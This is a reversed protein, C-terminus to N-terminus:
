DNNQNNRKKRKVKDYVKAMTLEQELVMLVLGIMAFFLAYDSAQRRKEFLLKRRGLRYCEKRTSREGQKIEGSCSNGHTQNSITEDTNRNNLRATPPSSGTIAVSTLDTRNSSNATLSMPNIKEVNSHLVTSIIPQSTNSMFDGLLSGDCESQRSSQRPLRDPRRLQRFPIALFLFFLGLFFFFFSSSFSIGIL